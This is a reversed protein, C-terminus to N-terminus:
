HLQSQKWKISLGAVQEQCATIIMCDRGTLSPCYRACMVYHHGTKPPRSQLIIHQTHSIDVNCHLRISWFLHSRHRPHGSWSLM